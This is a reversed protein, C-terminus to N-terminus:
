SATVTFHITCLGAPDTAFEYGPGPKTALIPYPGGSESGGVYTAPITFAATARISGTHPSFPVNIGGGGTGLWSKPGLFFVGAAASEPLGAAPDVQACGKVTVHVVAGVSAAAPCVTISSGPLSGTASSCTSSPTASASSYAPQASTSPAVAVSSSGTAAATPGASVTSSQTCAALAVVVACAVGLGGTARVVSVSRM